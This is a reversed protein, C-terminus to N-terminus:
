QLVSLLTQALTILGLGMIEGVLLLICFVVLLLRYVAVLFRYSTLREFLARRWLM